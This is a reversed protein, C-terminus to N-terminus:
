SVQRERLRKPIRPSPVQVGHYYGPFGQGLNAKFKIIISPNGFLAGLDSFDPTRRGGLFVDVRSARRKLRPTSTDACFFAHGTLVFGHLPTGALKRSASDSTRVESVQISIEEFSVIDM